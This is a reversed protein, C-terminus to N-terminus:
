GDGLREGSVADFLHVRAPDVGASIVEGPQARGPGSRVTVNSGPDGALQGYIYPDGGAEGVLAVKLALGSEGASLHEPRIGAIVRDRGQVARRQADGLRLGAGGLRIGDQGVTAEFLNM